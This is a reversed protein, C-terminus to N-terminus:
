LLAELAEIHVPSGIACIDGRRVPTPAGDEAEAVLWTDEYGCDSVIIGTRLPDHRWAATMGLNGFDNRYL